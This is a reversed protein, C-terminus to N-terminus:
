TYIFYPYKLLEYFVGGYRKVQTKGNVKRIYEVMGVSELNVWKKEPDIRERIDSLM